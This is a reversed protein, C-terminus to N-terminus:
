KGKGKSGKGAPKGNMMKKMDSDKMPMGGPMKHMGMPMNGKPMMNGSPKGSKASKKPM